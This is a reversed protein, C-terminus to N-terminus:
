TFHSILSSKFVFHLKIICSTHILTERIITSTDLILAAWYSSLSCLVSPTFFLFYLYTSPSVCVDRYAANALDEALVTNIGM